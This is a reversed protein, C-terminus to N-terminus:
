SEPCDVVNLKCCDTISNKDNNCYYYSKLNIQYCKITLRDKQKSESKKDPPEM